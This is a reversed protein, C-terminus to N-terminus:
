RMAGEMREASKERSPSSTSVTTRAPASQTCRSMISPWKTGFMVKPGGTTFAIRARASFTNSQWMIIAGASGYIAAKASAPLLATVSSARPSPSSGGSTSTWGPLPSPRMWQEPALGTLLKEIATWEDFLAATIAQQETMASTM